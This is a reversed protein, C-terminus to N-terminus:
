LKKNIMKNDLITQVANKVAVLAKYAGQICEYLMQNDKVYYVGGLHAGNCFKKQFTIEDLCPINHTEDNRVNIVFKYDKNNFTDKCASAFSALYCDEEKEIADVFRSNSKTKQPTIGYLKRIITKYKEQINYYNICALMCEYRYLVEYLIYREDEIPYKQMKNYYNYLSLLTLDCMSIQNNIRRMIEDFSVNKELDAESDWNNFLGTVPENFVSKNRKIFSSKDLVLSKADFFVSKAEERIARNPFDIFDYLNYGALNM